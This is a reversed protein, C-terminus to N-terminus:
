NNKLFGYAFSDIPSNKDIILCGIPGIVGGFNKEINQTNSHPVVSHVDWETGPLDLGAM